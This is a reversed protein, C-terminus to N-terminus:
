DPQEEEIPQQRANLLEQLVVGGRGNAKFRGWRARVFPLGQGQAFYWINVGDPTWEGMKKRMTIPIARELVETQTIPILNFQPHPDRPARWQPPAAPPMSNASTSSAFSFVAPMPEPGHAYLSRGARQVLYDQGQLSLAYLQAGHKQRPMVWVRLQLHPWSRDPHQHQLLRIMQSLSFRLSMSDARVLAHPDTPLLALEFSVGQRLTREQNYIHWASSGYVALAGLLLALGQVGRGARPKTPLAEPTSEATASSVAVARPEKHLLTAALRQRRPDKPLAYDLAMGMSGVLGASILLRGVKELLSLYQADYWGFLMMLFLAAFGAVGVQNARYVSYLLGTFCLVLWPNPWWVFALCLATFAVLLLARTALVGSLMLWLSGVLVFASVSSFLPLRFGTQAWNTAVWWSLLALVFLWLWSGVLLPVLQWRRRPGSWQYLGTLLFVWALLFALRVDLVPAQFHWMPAQPAIWPWALVVFLLWAATISRVLLAQAWGYWLLASLFVLVFGLPAMQGRSWVVTISILAGAWTILWLDAWWRNKQWPQGLGLLLSLAFLFWAFVPVPLQGWVSLFSVWFVAAVVVLLMRLWGFSWSFRAKQTLAAAFGGQSVAGQKVARGQLPTRIQETASDKDTASHLKKALQRQGMRRMQAFLFLAALPVLLLGYLGLGMQPLVTVSLHLVLLLGAATYALWALLYQRQRNLLRAMVLLVALGLIWPGAMIQQPARQHAFEVVALAWSFVFVSFSLPMMVRALRSVWRRLGFFLAFCLLNCLALGLNLVFQASFYFSTVILLGVSVNTLFWTLLIIPISQVGLAWPLLLVAWWAFLRWSDAGSHYLQGLLALLAGLMLAALVLLASSLSYPKAWDKPHRQGWRVAILLPATFAATVLAIRQAYPWQQWNAALWILVASGLLVGACVLTSRLLARVWQQEARNTTRESRHAQM